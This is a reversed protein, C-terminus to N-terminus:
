TWAVISVFMLNRLHLAAKTEQEIIALPLLYRDQPPRPAAPRHWRSVILLLAIATVISSLLAWSRARPVVPQESRSRDDRDRPLLEYQSSSPKRSLRSLWNSATQM